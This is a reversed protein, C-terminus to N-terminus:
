WADPNGWSGPFHYLYRAHDKLVPMEVSLADLRLITGATVSWDIRAMGDFDVELRASVALSSSSEFRVSFVAQDKEASILDLRGRTWRVKKGNVRAVPRLPGALLQSGTSTAQAAFATTSFTYTRGWCTIELDDGSETANLPTWPGPVRRTIGERSGLWPLDGPWKDQLTRTTFRTGSRDIFTARFDCCGSPIDGTDFAVEDHGINSVVRTERTEGSRTSYLVLEVKGGQALHTEGLMHVRAYVKRYEYRTYIM